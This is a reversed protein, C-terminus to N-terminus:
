GQQYKWQLLNRFVNDNLIRSYKHDMGMIQRTKTESIWESHFHPCILLADLLINSPLTRWVKYFLNIDVFITRACDTEFDTSRNKSQPKRLTMKLPAKSAVCSSYVTKFMKMIQACKLGEVNKNQLKILKSGVIIQNYCPSHKAVHEVFISRQAPKKTIPDRNHFTIGFPTTRVSITYDDNDTIKSDNVITDSNRETM